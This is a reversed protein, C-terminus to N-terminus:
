VAKQEGKQRGLDRTFEYIRDNCIKGLIVGFGISTCLISINSLNSLYAYM